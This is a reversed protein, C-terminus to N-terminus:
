VNLNFIRNYIVIAVPQLLQVHVRRHTHTHTRKSFQNCIGLASSERERDRERERETESQMSISSSIFGNAVIKMLRADHTAHPAHQTRWSSASHLLYNCKNAKFAIVFLCVSLLLSLLFLSPPFALPFRIGKCIRVCEPPCRWREEGHRWATPWKRRCKANVTWKATQKEWERGKETQRWAQRSMKGSM